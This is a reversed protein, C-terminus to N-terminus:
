GWNTLLMILDGFGVDGSGDLDAACGACPGWQALLMVLDNFGIVGDGDLDGPLVTISRWVIAETRDLVVNHASGVITVTGDPAVHIGRAVSTGFDDPLEAGLNTWAAPDGNWLAADGGVAGIQFGEDCDSLQAPLADFVRVGHPSDFWLVPVPAAAGYAAQGIQQGDAAATIWSRGAGSPHLVIPESTVSPWVVARSSPGPYPTLASGYIRGGDIANAYSKSWGSDPLSTTSAGGNFRVAQAFTNGVEDHDSITGVHTAGDTDAVSSYEWGSAYMEQHTAASGTWKAGRQHYCTYWQGGIQCGYPWWYWGVQVTGDGAIVAGGVSGAPTLDIWSAAGDHWLGPRSLTGYEPEISGIQGLHTTGDTANAVSSIAGAPHLRIVSWAAPRPAPTRVAVVAPTTDTTGCPNTAACVYAGADAGGVSSLTLTDTLAGAITGGGPAPGDALPAGDRFWQFTMPGNGAFASALEVVQELWVTRSSPEIAVVPCAPAPMREVLTTAGSPTLGGAVYLQEDAGVYAAFGYRAVVMPPGPTWAEANVDLIWVRDEIVSASIPGSRGGFVCLRGDPGVLLEHDVLGVPLDPVVGTQWQSAQIDFVVVSALRGSTTADYGGAVYIRGAGDAAAAANARGAPLDPLLEWTDTSGVYREVRASSPAGGFVPGGDGGGIAYLRQAGDTAHAFRSPPAGPTRDAVNNWQGEVDDYVFAGGDDGDPDTADHGGYVIIRGLDDVGVGQGIIPGEISPLTQWAGDPTALKHVAANQDGGEFPMGGIAYLASGVRVGAPWARADPGPPFSPAASWQASAGSTMLLVPVIHRAIRRM